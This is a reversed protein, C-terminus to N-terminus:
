FVKLGLQIITFVILGIAIGITKGLLENYGEKSIYWFGKTTTM